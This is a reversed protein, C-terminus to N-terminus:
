KNNREYIWMAVFSLLRDPRLGKHRHIQQTLVWFYWELDNTSRKINTDSHTAYQHMYPIANILHTYAKMLERHTYREWTPRSLSKENMAPHHLIRWVRLAIPFRFADRMFHCHTIRKLARGIDTKPKSTIYNKIQREIHVICRQHPVEPYVENIARKIPFSGDTVFVRLDNYWMNCRLFKLDEVIDRKREGDRVSFRIGRKLIYEYYVILIKRKPLHYGDIMVYHVADFVEDISTIKNTDLHHRINKSVQYKKKSTQKAIQRASYWETLWEKFLVNSHFVQETKRKVFSYWCWTCLYKQKRQSNFWNKTIM